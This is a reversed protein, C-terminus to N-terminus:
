DEVLTYNVDKTYYIKGKYEVGSFYYITHSEENIIYFDQENKMKGYNLYISELKSLDIKYYSNNDNPNISHEFNIKDKIPINGNNLYYLAISDELVNIDHNMSNLKALNVGNNISIILISFIAVVIILIPLFIIKKM